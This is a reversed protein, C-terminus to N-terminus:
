PTLLLARSSPLSCVSSPTHTIQATYCSLSVKLCSISSKRLSSRQSLASLIASPNTPPSSHYGPSDPASFPLLIPQPTSTAPCHTPPVMRQIPPPANDSHPLTHFPESTRNAPHSPPTPTTFVAGSPARTFRSLVQPLLMLVISTSRRSVKCSRIRRTAVPTRELLHRSTVDRPADWEAAITRGTRSSCPIYVRM